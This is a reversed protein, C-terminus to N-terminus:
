VACIRCITCTKVRDTLLLPGKVQIVFYIRDVDANLQFLVGRM